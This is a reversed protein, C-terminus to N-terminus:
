RETRVTVKEWGWARLWGRVYEQLAPCDPAAEEITVLWGDDLRQVESCRLDGWNIPEKAFQPDQTFRSGM